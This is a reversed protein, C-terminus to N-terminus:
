IRETINEVLINITYNSTKIHIKNLIRNEYQTLFTNIEQISIFITSDAISDYNSLFRDEVSRPIRCQHFVMLSIAMSEVSFTIALWNKEGKKTRM